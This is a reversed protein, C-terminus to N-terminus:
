KRRRVLLLLALAGIAVWVLNVGKLASLNFLTARGSLEAANEPAQPSTGAARQNAPLLPYPTYGSAAIIQADAATVGQLADREAAKQAKKADVAAFGAGAMNAAINLGPIAAAIPVAKRAVKVIAKNFKKGISKLKFGM